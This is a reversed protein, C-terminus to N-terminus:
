RWRIEFQGVKQGNPYERRLDDVLPGSVRPSFWPEHNVVVVQATLWRQRGEDEADSLFEFASGSPNTLGALFFVEPCDPGAVLDGGRLRHEIEAVLTRYVFADGASVRLHARPLDLPSDFHRHVHENGLDQIYGRNASLVGFLIFTAAAPVMTWQRLAGTRAAVAVLAIVALPAVYMFYIPAAFPFQNLSLWALMSASMFLVARERPAVGRAAIWWCIGIPLVAGFARGSQWITQYASTSVTAALPIAIAVVWIRLMRARSAVFPWRGPALFVLAVLPVAFVIRWAAPMPMSAFAIRRQPALLAGNVFDALRGNVIYPTLLILLPPLSALAAMALPALWARVPSPEHSSREAAGPTGRVFLAAACALVPAFLYLGEADFLRPRLIAAAFLVAAVAALRRILLPATAYAIASFLAVAVYVGTQKIAVAVGAALGAAAVHHLRGTDVYRVFAWTCCLACALLWWSPLGAFYNPFSWVLALWTALAAGAPRLWRRALVYCLVLTLCALALLMWRVNVLDTGSLKFVAAYLWSLGGTYPEEYDTHPIAGHLVREATQGLMGEDHPMWGRAVFATLYLCGAVVLAAGLARERISVAVSASV